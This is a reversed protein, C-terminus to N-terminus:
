SLTHNRLGLIWDWMPSTAPLRSKGRGIDRAKGSYREHFFYIFDKLFQVHIAM